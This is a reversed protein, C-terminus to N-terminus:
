RFLVHLVNNFSIDEDCFVYLLCIFLVFVSSM